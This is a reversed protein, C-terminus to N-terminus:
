KKKKNKKAKRKRARRSNIKAAIAEEKVRKKYNRENKLLNLAAARGNQASNELPDSDKGRTYMDRQVEEIFSKKYSMREKTLPVPGKKTTEFGCKLETEYRKARDLASEYSRKKPM